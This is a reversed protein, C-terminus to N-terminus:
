AARPRSAPRVGDRPPDLRDALECLAAREIARARQASVHLEAGVAALTEPRHGIGYHHTVVVRQREPLHAIAEALKSEGERAITEAAPDPAAADAFLVEFPRGDSLPEDLSAVTTPAALAERVASASLGTEASVLDLSLALGQGELSALARAIARRREVIHKPLRLMHAQGTIAHTIAQRIRWYAYTSFAAGRTPDFRDVAELLGISGEQILDELPLGLDRYRRAVTSVLGLHREVILRRADRDGAAARRCLAVDPDTCDAPGRPRM